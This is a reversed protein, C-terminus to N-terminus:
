RQLAEAAMGQKDVFRPLRSRLRRLALAKLRTLHRNLMLRDGRRYDAQHRVLPRVLLEGRGGAREPRRAADDFRYGFPQRRRYDALMTALREHTRHTAVGLLVERRLALVRFTDLQFRIGGDPLGLQGALRPVESVTAVAWQGEAM